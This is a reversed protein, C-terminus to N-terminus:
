THSTLAAPEKPVTKERRHKPKQSPFSNTAVEELSMVDEQFDM